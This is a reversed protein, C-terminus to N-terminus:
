FIHTIREKSSVCVIIDCVQLNIKHRTKIDFLLKPRVSPVNAIYDCYHMRTAPSFHSLELIDFVQVIYVQFM